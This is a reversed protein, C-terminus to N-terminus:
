ANCTVALRLADSERVAGGEERSPPKRFFYQWFVTSIECSWHLAARDRGRRVFAISCTMPYQGGSSPAFACCPSALTMGFAYLSECSNRTTPSWSSRLFARTNSTDTDPWVRHRVYLIRDALFYALTEIGSIQIIQSDVHVQPSRLTQLIRRLSQPTGPM